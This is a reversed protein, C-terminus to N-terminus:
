EGEEWDTEFEADTMPHSDRGYTYKGVMQDRWYEKPGRPDAAAEDNQQDLQEQALGDHSAVAIEIVTLDSSRRRVYVSAPTPGCYPVSLGGIMINGDEVEAHGLFEASLIYTTM